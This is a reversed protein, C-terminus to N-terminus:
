IADLEGHDFSACLQSCTGTVIFRWYNMQYSGSLDWAPIYGWETITNNAPRSVNANMYVGDHLATRAAFDFEVYEGQALPHDFLISSIVAGGATEMQIQLTAINGTIATVQLRLSQYNDMTGISGFGVVDGSPGSVDIYFTHGFTVFQWWGPHELGFQLAVPLCYRFDMADRNWQVSDLTAWRYRHYINLNDEIWLRSRTGQLYKLKQLAVNIGREDDPFGPDPQLVATYVFAEPALIRARNSGIPDYLTGDRLRIKPRIAQEQPMSYRAGWTPLVYATDYTAGFRDITFRDDTIKM